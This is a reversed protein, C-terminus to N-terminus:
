FLILACGGRVRVKVPVLLCIFFVESLCRVRSTRPCAAVILAVETWVTPHQPQIERGLTEPVRPNPPFM